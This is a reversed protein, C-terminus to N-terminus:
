PRKGLLYAGRCEPTVAQTTARLPTAPDISSQEIWVGKWCVDQAYNGSNFGFGDRGCDEVDGDANWGQSQEGPFSGGTPFTLTAPDFRLHWTTDRSREALSWGGIAVGSLYGTIRFETVDAETIVPKSLLDDPFGIVGTMTYGGAGAWCFNFRAAQVPAALCACVGALLAGQRIM